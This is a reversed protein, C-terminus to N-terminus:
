IMAAEGDDGRMVRERYVVCHMACRTIRTHNHAYIYSVVIRRRRSTCM